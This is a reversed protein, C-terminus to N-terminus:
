YINISRRLQHPKQATSLTQIKTITTKKSAKYIRPEMVWSKLHSNPFHEAGLIGSRM